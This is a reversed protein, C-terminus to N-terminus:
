EEKLKVDKMQIKELASEVLDEALDIANDQFTAYRFKVDEKMQKVFDEFKTDSGEFDAPYWSISIPINVTVTIKTYGFTAHGKHSSKLQSGKEM